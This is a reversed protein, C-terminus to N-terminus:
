DNIFDILDLGSNLKELTENIRVCAEELIIDPVTLSIRIYNKSQLGFASGPMVAVLAHKLLVWCLNDADINKATVEVFQFMGAQPLTPKLHSSKSLTSYVKNARRWYDIRMKDAAKSPRELAFATMDAIFPQNGFLMTEALPLIKEIVEECAMVWGSRFGTAAHSKSISSVIITREALGPISLPSIFEGNFILDEYVEDCVVWLNKEECLDRFSELDEKSLTAGTPNHPTNLLLIKSNPTITERIDKEQMIFGKEPRLPISVVCAGSARIIGEYTAYCPDGVLVEDGTQALIMITAYLATQTGPFCIFNKETVNVASIKKYKRELAKLLEPEGRGNSYGTRGSLMSRYCEEILEPDTAIDPEGITLEIIDLGAAKQERAAVHIAWKESGLASIRQAIDAFTNLKKPPKLM